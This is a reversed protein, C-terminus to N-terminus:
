ENLVDGFYKAIRAHLKMKTRTERKKCSSSIARKGHLLMRAEITEVHIRTMTTGLINKQVSLAREVEAESVASGLYRVALSAFINWERWEPVWESKALIWEWTRTWDNGKFPSRMADLLGNRMQDNLWFTLKDEFYGPDGGLGEVGYTQLSRMAREFSDQMLDYSLLEDVTLDKLLMLNEQIMESVNTAETSSDCFSVFSEVENVTTTLEHEEDNGIIEHEPEAVEMRENVKGDCFSAINRDTLLWSTLAEDYNNSLLRSLFHMVVIRLVEKYDHNLVTVAKKWKRLLLISLPVIHALTAERHEIILSLDHIPELVTMLMEFEDSLQESLEDINKLLFLEIDRKKDLLYDLIDVIYYWRTKSIAPCKSKIALKAGRTRLVKQWNLVSSVTRSMITSSALADTFVLNLMHNFCPVDIVAIDRFNSHVVNAVAKAQAALRDHVISAIITKPMASKINSITKVLYLEYKESDWADCEEVNWILPRLDNGTCDVITYVVHSQLTTGADIKVNVLLKEMQYASKLEEREAAASMIMFQRLEQDTFSPVLSSGLVRARKGRDSNFQAYTAVDMVEALFSTMADSIGSRISLDLRGVFTGLAKLIREHYVELQTDFTLEIDKRMM